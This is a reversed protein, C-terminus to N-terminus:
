NVLPYLYPDQPVSQRGPLDSTHPRSRAAPASGKHWAPLHGASLEVHSNGNICCYVLWIKITYVM